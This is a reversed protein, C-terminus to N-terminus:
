YDSNYNTITVNVEDVIFLKMKEGDVMCEIYKNSIKLVKASSFDFFVPNGEKDELTGSVEIKTPEGFLEKYASLKKNFEENNSPYFQFNRM